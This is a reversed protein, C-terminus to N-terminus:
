RSPLSEVSISERVPVTVAVPPPEEVPRAQPQPLVEARAPQAQRAERSKEVHKVTHAVLDPIGCGSLVLPVVAAVLVRMWGTM